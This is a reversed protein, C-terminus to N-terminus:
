QIKIETSESWFIRGILCLDFVQLAIRDTCVERTQKLTEYRSIIEQTEDFQLTLTRTLIYLLKCNHRVEDSQEVVKELFQRYM